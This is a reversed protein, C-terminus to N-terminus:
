IKLKEKRNNLSMTQILANLGLFHDGHYHTIFIKKIQMFSIPSFAIQRQTGEGCDFLVVEGGMKVATATVNRQKSPWSGGTGLFVIRLTM